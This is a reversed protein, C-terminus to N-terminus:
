LLSLVNRATTQRPPPKAPGALELLMAAVRDFAQDYAGPDPPPCLPPERRISRLAAACTPCRALLHRVVQRNEQRDTAGLVFRLLVDETPNEMTQRRSTVRRSDRDRTRDLLRLGRLVGELRARLESKDRNPEV